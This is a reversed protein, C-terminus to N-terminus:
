RPVPVGLFTCLPGWGQSIEFVLLKEPPVEDKVKQIHAVYAAIVKEKEWTDGLAERTIIKRIMPGLGRVPLGFADMATRIGINTHPSDPSMRFITQCCSAYWKEADRVTLIVKADPYAELQEKWFVSSPFDCTARYNKFVSPFDHKESRNDAAHSWFSTHAPGNALIETMHYTPFGLIELAEKLSSTGTRGWGAGIVEIKNETM